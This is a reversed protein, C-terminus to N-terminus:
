LSKQKRNESGSKQLREKDTKKKKVKKSLWLDAKNESFIKM